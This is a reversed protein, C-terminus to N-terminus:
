HTTRRLQRCFAEYDEATDGYFGDMPNDDPTFEFVYPEDAVYNPERISPEVPELHLFSLTRKAM